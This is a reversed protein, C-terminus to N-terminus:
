MNWRKNNNFSNRKELSNEKELIGFEEGVHVYEM